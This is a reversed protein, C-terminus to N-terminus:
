RKIDIKESKNTTSSQCHKTSSTIGRLILEPEPAKAKVPLNIKEIVCFSCAVIISAAISLFTITVPHTFSFFHLIRFKFSRKNSTLVDLTMKLNIDEEARSKIKESEEPTAIGDVYKAVLNYDVDELQNTQSPKNKIERYYDRLMQEINDTKM